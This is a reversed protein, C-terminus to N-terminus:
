VLTRSFLLSYLPSSYFQWVSSYSGNATFNSVRLTHSFSFIGSPLPRPKSNVTVPGNTLHSTSSIKKTKIVSVSFTFHSSQGRFPSNAPWKSTGISIWLQWFPITKEVREYLWSSHQIGHWTSECLNHLMNNGMIRPHPWIGKQSQMLSQSLSYLLFFFFNTLFRTHTSFLLPFINCPPLQEGETPLTADVFVSYSNICKAKM